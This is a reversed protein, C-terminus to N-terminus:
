VHARACYVRGYGRMVDGMVAAGLHGSRSKLKCNPRRQFRGRGSSVASRRVFGPIRAMTPYDTANRIKVFREIRTHKHQFHRHPVIHPRANNTASPKVRKTKTKSTNKMSSTERSSDRDYYEINTSEIYSRRNRDPFKIFFQIPILTSM